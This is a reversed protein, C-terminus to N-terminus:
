LDFSWWSDNCECFVSCTCHWGETAIEGFNQLLNFDCNKRWFAVRKEMELQLKVRFSFLTSNNVESGSSRYPSDDEEEESESGYEVARPPVHHFAGTNFNTVSSGSRDREQGASSDDSGGNAQHRFSETATSRSASSSRKSIVSNLAPVNLSEGLKMKGALIYSSPPPAGAGEPEFVANSVAYPSTLPAKDVTKVKPLKM